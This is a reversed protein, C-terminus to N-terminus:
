ESGGKERAREFRFRSRDIWRLAAVLPIKIPRGAAIAARVTSETAGFDRELLKAPTLEDLEDGYLWRLAADQDPFTMGHAIEELEREKAAAELEAFPTGGKSLNRERWDEAQTMVSRGLQTEDTFLKLARDLTGVTVSETKTREGPHTSHGRSVAMWRRGPNDPKHLFYVALETWRRLDALHQPQTESSAFAIREGGQRAINKTVSM